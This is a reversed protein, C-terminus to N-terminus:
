QPMRSKRPKGRKWNASCQPNCTKRKAYATPGERGDWSFRRGMPKHCAICDKVAIRHVRATIIRRAEPRPMAALNEITNNMKDGDLYIVILGRRIRGNHKEWVARNLMERNGSTKRLYGAYFGSVVPTYRAGEFEVFPRLCPRGM